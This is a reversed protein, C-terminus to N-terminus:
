SDASVNAAHVIAQCHIETTSFLPTGDLNDNKILIPIETCGLIVGEAGQAVLRRMVQLFSEQTDARFENLTLESVIKHHILVRETETPTLITIGHAHLKQSYFTGEMTAKVGLLGVTKIGRAQVALATAEAINVIDRGHSQKIAAEFRHLGNACLALVEAGGNILVGVADVIMQECRKESPDARQLALFEGEDLSEMVLHASRHGGLKQRAYTNILRYYDLSSVWSLGAVLGIKRM